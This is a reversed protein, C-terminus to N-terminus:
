CTIKTGKAVSERFAAFGCDKLVTGDPLTATRFYGLNPLRRSPSVNITVTDGVRIKDVSVSRRMLANKDSWEVYFPAVSGDPKAVELTIQSHPNRIEVEKVKGTIDLTKSQDFNAAVSHHALGVDCNMFIWSTVIAVAALARYM